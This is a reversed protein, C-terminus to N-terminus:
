DKIELGGFLVTGTIRIIPADDNVKSTRKDNIGGFMALADIKVKVNKPVTLEGGGFLVLVDVRATDKIEVDSLDVKSGGFVANINGAEFSKSNAKREDGGFVATSSITSRSDKIQNDGEKSRILISFGIWILVIPWFLAWINFKIVDLVSLQLLVGLILWFGASRVNNSTLQAIGILILISPWYLRFLDDSKVFGMSDLLFGIGLFILVLGWIFKGRSVNKM